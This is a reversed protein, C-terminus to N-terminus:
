ANDEAAEEVTLAPNITIVQNAPSPLTSLLHPQQLGDTSECHELRMDSFGLTLRALGAPGTSATATPLKHARM